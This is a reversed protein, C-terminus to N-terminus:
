RVRRTQSVVICLCHLGTSALALRNAIDEARPDGYITHLEVRFVVAMLGPTNWDIALVPYAPM